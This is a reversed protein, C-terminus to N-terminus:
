MQVIPCGKTTKLVKRLYTEKIREISRLQSETLNYYTDSAYMISGRLISNMFIIACEFYYKRLSLRELKTMITRIVGISKNRLAIINVMNNGEASIVFGLYKYETVKDIPIEGLHHEVLETEGSESDDIHEERWRDVMLETNIVSEQNKGVLMSKCKTFGFQLCKEASKVNFEVNMQQAQYGAETVGILDDVLGLVSVQLSDKYMYGLGSEHIDKAISDVRVSASISGWTDGQLVINKLIQRTTLGGPTKVAMHIEENAKFILALNEDDLGANYIDNIAEELNISDFMQAYDYIQLVVPKNKKRRLTEHIIGNIIWINTKCGKGKRGGMQCDSINRDIEPYKTNYILRM